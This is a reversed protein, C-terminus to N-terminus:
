RSWPTFRAPATGACYARPCSETRQEGKTLFRENEETHVFWCKCLFVSDQLNLKQRQSHIVSGGSVQARNETRNKNNSETCITCNDQGLKGARAHDSTRYKM